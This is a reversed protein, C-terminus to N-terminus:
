FADITVSYPSVKWEDVQSLIYLRFYEALSTGSCGSEPEHIVAVFTQRLVRGIHLNLIEIAITARHVHM